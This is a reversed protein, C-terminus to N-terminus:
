AGGPDPLKEVTHWTVGCHPCRALRRPRGAAKFRVGGADWVSVQHGCPCRMVWRRSEAEIADAWRRPLLGRVLKQVLSM